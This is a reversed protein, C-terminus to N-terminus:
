LVFEVNKAKKITLPIIERFIKRNEQIKFM